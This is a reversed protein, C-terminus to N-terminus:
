QKGLFRNLRFPKDVDIFIDNQTGDKLGDNFKNLWYIYYDKGRLEDNEFKIPIFCPIQLSKCMENIKELDTINYVDIFNIVDTLNRLIMSSTNGM